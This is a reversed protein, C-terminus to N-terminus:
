RKPITNNRNKNNGSEKAVAKIPFGMEKCYFCSTKSLDPKNKNDKTVAVTVTPRPLEGDNNIGSFELEKQIHAVIQDYKGHEIYALINSRKLHPPMKAYLFSNIM